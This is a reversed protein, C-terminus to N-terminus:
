RGSGPGWAVVHDGFSYEEVAYDSFHEIRASVRRTLVNDLSVLTSIIDLDREVYVIRRPLVSLACNAYSMTLTAPKAFQLGSPEFHVRNVSESRITATITVTRSLAGAPIVLTHPGVAITGGATGITKASRASPLARCSLLSSTLSSILGASMVASDPAFSPKTPDTDGCGALFTSGMLLTASLTLTGRRM